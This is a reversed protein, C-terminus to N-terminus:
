STIKFWVRFFSFFPFCSGFVWSPIDFSSPSFFSFDLWFRLTLSSSTNKESSFNEINGGKKLILLLILILFGLFNLILILILIRSICIEIDIDFDINQFQPKWYWFWYWYTWFKSKEFTKLIKHWTQNQNSNKMTKM